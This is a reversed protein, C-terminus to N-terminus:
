LPLSSIRFPLSSGPGLGTITIVSGDMSCAWSVTSGEKLWPRLKIEKELVASHSCKGRRNMGRAPNRRTLDFACRLGPLFVPSPQEWARLSGSSVSLCSHRVSVWAPLAVESAVLFLLSRVHAPPDPFEAPFRSFLPLHM